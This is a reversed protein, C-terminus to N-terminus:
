DAKAGTDRIVPAWRQTETKLFATFAEPTSSKPDAGVNRIQEQVEPLALAKVIEANLRAVVAKPVGAPAAMGGYGISEFPAGLEAFTPVTPLVTSRQPAAIALARVRGARIQTMAGPINAFMVETRGGILDTLAAPSGSFPVHTADFKNLKRYLEMTLHQPSGVGLSGYPIPTPRARVATLFEGVSNFPSKTNVILVNPYVAFLSIPQFDRDTDFPLTAYLNKHFVFPTSIFALTYGDPVARAALGYAIVGSAGPRNDYVLPKGLGESVKAGVTRALIDSVGGAPFDIILRVPKNPYDGPQAAALASCLALAAAFAIRPHLTSM